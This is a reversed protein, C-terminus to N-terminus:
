DSLKHELWVVPLTNHYDRHTEKFTSLADKLKKLLSFKKTNPQAQYLRLFKRYLLSLKQVSQRMKYPKRRQFRKLLNDVAREAALIEGREFFIAINAFHFYYQTDSPYPALSSPILSKAMDPEGLFIHCYCRMVEARHRTMEGKSLADWKARFIEIADKYRACKMLVSAYNFALSAGFEMHHTQSFEFAKQYYKLANEHNDNLMYALGLNGLASLQEVCISPSISPLSFIITMAKEMSSIDAHLSRAFALSKQEYYEALPSRVNTFDVQKLVEWSKSQEYVQLYHAAATYIFGWQAYTTTYHHKLHAKSEDISSLLEELSDIKHTHSKWLRQFHLNDLVLLAEFDCTSLATARAKRYNEEFEQWLGRELLSELLFRANLLPNKELGSLCQREALFYEIQESLRRCDNRFRTDTTPTYPEHYLSEILQRKCRSLRKQQSTLAELADYLNLLPQFAHLRTRFAQREESSLSLFLREVKLASM